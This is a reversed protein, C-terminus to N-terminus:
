IQNTLSIIIVSAVIYVCVGSCSGNRDQKTM